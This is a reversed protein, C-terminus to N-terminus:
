WIIFYSSIMRTLRKFKAEQSEPINDHRCTPDFTEVGWIFEDGLTYFQKSTYGCIAKWIIGSDWYSFALLLLMYIRKDSCSNILLLTKQAEM